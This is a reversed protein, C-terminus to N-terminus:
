GRLHLNVREKQPTFCARFVSLSLHPDCAGCMFVDLAAYDLEPWTHISIHSEALIAVGTIGAGEGFSHLLVQLVQAGCATAAERLASDIAAQDTLNQCGWFDILLHQGPAVTKTM